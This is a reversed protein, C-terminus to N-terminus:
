WKMKKDKHIFYYFLKRETCLCVLLLGVLGGRGRESLRSVVATSTLLGWLWTTCLRSQCGLGFSLKSTQFSMQSM